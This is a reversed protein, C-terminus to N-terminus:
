REDEGGSYEREDIIEVWGFVQEQLARGRDDPDREVTGDKYVYRWVFGLEDDAVTCFRQEEGDLLIRLKHVDPTNITVRM